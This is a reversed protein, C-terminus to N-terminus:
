KVLLQKFQAKASDLVRLSETLLLGRSELKTIKSPLAGYNAHIYALKQSTQPDNFSEQAAEISVADKPDFSDM